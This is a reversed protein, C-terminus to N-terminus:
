QIGAKGAPVAAKAVKARSKVAQDVAQASGSQLCGGIIGSTPLPPKAREEFFGVKELCFGGKAAGIRRGSPSDGPSEGILAGCFGGAFTVM